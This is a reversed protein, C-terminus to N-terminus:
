RLLVMRKTVARKGSGTKMRYFYIGSSVPAEANDMGDWRVQYIGADYDSDALVRVKQGLVNYIEIKVHSQEPVNFSIQTSANFPNPYNQSLLYTSPLSTATEEEVATPGFIVGGERYIALGGGYTGIWLNGEKDIALASVEYTTLPSNNRNYETWEEGDFKAVFFKAVFGFGWDMWTGVWMNGHEDFALATVVAGEYEDYVIWSEGDFKALGGYTRYQDWDFHGTGILISGREDIGLANVYNDPLESNDTNYVTWNDGDFKALGGSVWTEKARDRYSAMGIWTNGQDDAALACVWNAPLESNDEDYVTWSEGDFRALGGRFTGIWINGQEDIELATVHNDPLGSDDEDYVTWSEGDFRALGGGWTGIWLSGRENTALARIENSQLGSNDKNYRTWNLWDLKALGGRTGIWINDEGDITLATLSNSPLGSNSTSYATWSEGDFKALSRAVGNWDIWPPEMAIWLNEESDVVLDAVAGGTVAFESKKYATWNEGDFKVFESGDTWVWLNGQRSIALHRIWNNPLDSNDKNYVDWSEGDFKALGKSEAYQGSGIWVSGQEDIALATVYDDPLGSNSARYHTWNEGDLRVLRSDTGIWVNGQHDIVFADIHTVGFGVEYVTCNDGDFKVLVIAVISSYWENEGPEAYAGIWLNGLEDVALALINDSPLMSNSRNHFTMDGTAKDFRVVGVGTGVWLHEGDDALARVNDGYTFTIWETDCAGGPTQVPIPPPYVYEILRESPNGAVDEAYGYIKFSSVIEPIWHGYYLHEGPSGEWSADKVLSIESVVSDGPDTKVIAKVDVLPGPEFVCFTIEVSDGVAAYRTTLDARIDPPTIDEGVVNIILSDRQEFGESIFSFEFSIEHGSPTDSTLAFERSLYAERIEGPFVEGLSISGLDSGEGLNVFPDGTSIAATLSQFILDTWNKVRFRLRLRDGPNPPSGTSVWEQPTQYRLLVYDYLEIEQPIIVSASVAGNERHIENVAISSGIVQWDLDGSIAYGEYRSSPNTNESFSTFREGDFPDTSDGTNGVHSDKYSEDHSWFDLNDEGYLPDPEKGLSYGADRYKGDACELDVSWGTVHWILLGSGPVNRDYHSASADRNSILYYEEDSLPIKYVKGGQFLPLVSINQSQTVVELRENDAGIWGLKELSYACFPNPGDNGDWGWAGHGMIGWAGISASDEEPLSPHDTSYLDGLGLLHGFEHSMAGILREFSSSEQVTGLRVRIRDGSNGTDSSIFDASGLGLDAIGLAEGLPILGSPIRLLNVFVLDVYGDDDGSNAVGDPGDNDFRSFDVDSDVKGLLERVVQGYPLYKDMYYDAPHDSVYLNPLVEGEVKLQGCSMENYFHSFSGPIEMEFIDKSYSPPSSMDTYEDPFRVFITPAKIYGRTPLEGSSAIKARSRDRQTEHGCIFTGSGFAPFAWILFFYVSVLISSILTRRLMESERVSMRVVRCHEESTVLAVSEQM